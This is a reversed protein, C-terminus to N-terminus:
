FFFLDQRSSREQPVVNEVEVKVSHIGCSHLEEEFYEANWYKWPDDWRTTRCVLFRFTSVRQFGPCTDRLLLLDEKYLPFTVELCKVRACQHMRSYLWVLGCLPVPPHHLRVQVPSNKLHFYFERSVGGKESSLVFGRYSECDAFGLLTRWVEEPLVLSM